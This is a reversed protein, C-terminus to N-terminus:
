FDSRLNFCDFIIGITWQSYKDSNCTTPKQCKIQGCAKDSRKVTWSYDVPSFHWALITCRLLYRSTSYSHRWIQIGDNTWSCNICCDSVWDVLYTRTEDKNFNGGVRKYVFTKSTWFVIYSHKLSDIRTKLVIVFTRCAFCANIWNRMM